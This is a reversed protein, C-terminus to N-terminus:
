KKKQAGSLNRPRERPTGETHSGGGRTAGTSKITRPAPNKKKRRRRVHTQNKPPASQAPSHGLPANSNRTLRQDSLWASLRPAGTKQFRTLSFFFFRRRNTRPFRGEGGGGNNAIYFLTRPFLNLPHLPSPLYFFSVCVSSFFFRHRRSIDRFIFRGARVRPPPLSFTKFVLGSSSSLFFIPSDIASPASPLRTVYSSKHKCM